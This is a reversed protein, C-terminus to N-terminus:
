RYKPQINNEKIIKVISYLVSRKVHTNNYSGQHNFGKMKFVQKVGSQGLPACGSQYPVTGDGDSNQSSIKFTGFKGSTLRIYRLGNNEKTNAKMYYMASQGMKMADKAVGQNYAEIEKASVRPLRKMQEATLGRLAQDLTWTLTGFSSHKPDHGYNIYTCPHYKNTIKSHFRKVDDVKDNYVDKVSQQKNAVKVMKAPDILEEKVM